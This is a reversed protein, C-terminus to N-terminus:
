GGERTRARARARNMANCENGPVQGPHRATLTHTAAVCPIGVRARSRARYSGKVGRTEKRYDAARENLREGLTTPNCYDRGPWRGPLTAPHVVASLSM